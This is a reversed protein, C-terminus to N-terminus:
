DRLYIGLLEYDIPQVSLISYWNKKEKDYYKKEFFNFSFTIDEFLLEMNKSTDFFYLEYDWGPDEAHITFNGYKYYGYEDLHDFYDYKEHSYPSLYNVAYSRVNVVFRKELM